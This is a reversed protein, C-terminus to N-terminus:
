VYLALQRAFYDAAPTPDRHIVSYLSRHGQRLRVQYNHYHRKVKIKAEPFLATFYNRLTASVPENSGAIIVTESPNQM